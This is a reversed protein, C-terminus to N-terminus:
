KYFIIYFSFFIAGFWAFFVAGFGLCIYDILLGDKNSIIWIIYGIIGSVILIKLLDVDVRLEQIAENQARLKFIQSDVSKFKDNM